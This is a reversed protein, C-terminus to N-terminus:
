YVSFEHLGIRVAIDPYRHFLRWYNKRARARPISPELYKCRALMAWRQLKQAILIERVPRRANM